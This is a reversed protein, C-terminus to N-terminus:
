AVFGVRRGSEAGAQVYALQAVPVLYLAGKSDVLRLLGGAELADAVARELAPGDLESELSLERATNVLGIRIDM